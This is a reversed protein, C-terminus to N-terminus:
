HLLQSGLLGVIADAAFICSRSTARHPVRNLETQLEMLREVDSIEDQEAAVEFLLAVENLIGLLSRDANKAFTVSQLAAVETAIRQEPIGFVRLQADMCAALRAPLSSLPCQPFVVAMFTRANVGVIFHGRPVDVSKLSWDGLRCDDSSSPKELRHPAGLQKWLRATPMLVPMTTTRRGGLRM